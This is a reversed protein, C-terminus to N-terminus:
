KAGVLAAKAKELIASEQRDLNRVEARQAAVRRLDQHIAGLVVNRRAEIRALAKVLKPDLSQKAQMEAFRPNFEM